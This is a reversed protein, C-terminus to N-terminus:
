KVSISVEKAVGSIVETLRINWMGPLDNLAIDFSYSGSSNNIDCNKSYYNVKERLPNYVDVRVVSKLNSIGKGVIEFDLTVKEGPNLSSPTEVKIHDIKGEVLGFLEPVSTKVKIKFDNGKGMYKKNRIDYLHVSENIHLNIEEDKGNRGPLLGLLRTSGNNELFSYKEVGNAPDGALTTLNIGSELNEREYLKRIKVLSSENNQNLKEEPYSDLFYNLLYATGKGYKHYLLEPKNDENLLAEANRFKLKTEAGPTILEKRTYARAKIGFVNALARKSRFKTHDDMVGPLADAILIGGQEVFEEIQQVEKDSLAYSMPLILVKYGNTLLGGKEISSYSIFDFGHGSDHLIKVWGDRNRNYQRLTNSENDGTGPVIKGDVIWAAHISPYSYHIAIKLENEPEYSSILRGIGRKLLEDFGEKMDKGAQCIRLDPNLSSAQWFVYSGGTEKLFLHHYYDYLVGKGL